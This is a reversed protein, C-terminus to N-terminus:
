MRMSDASCLTTNEEELAKPQLLELDKSLYDGRPIRQEPYSTPFRAAVETEVAVAFVPQLAAGDM